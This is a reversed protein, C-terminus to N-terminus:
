KFVKSYVLLLQSHCRERAASIAAIELCLQTPRIQAYYSALAKRGHHGIPRNAAPKTSCAPSPHCHLAAGPLQHSGICHRGVLAAPRDSGHPRRGHQDKTKEGSRRRWRNLNCFMKCCKHHPRIGTGIPATFDLSISM